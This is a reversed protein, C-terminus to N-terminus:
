LFVFRDGADGKEQDGTVKLSSRRLATNGKIATKIYLLIIWEPDASSFLFTNLFYVFRDGADEIKQVIQAVKACDQELAKKNFLHLKSFLNLL